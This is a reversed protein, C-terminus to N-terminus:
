AASIRIQRSLSNFSTQNNVEIIAIRDNLKRIIKISKPITNNWVSIYYPKSNSYGGITTDANKTFASDANKQAVSYQTIFFLSLLLIDRGRNNKHHFLYKCM